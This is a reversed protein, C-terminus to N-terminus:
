KNEQVKVPQSKFLDKIIIPLSFVTFIDTKVQNDNRVKKLGRLTRSM